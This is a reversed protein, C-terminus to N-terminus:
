EYIYLVDIQSPDYTIVLDELSKNPFEKKAIEVIDAISPGKEKLFFNIEVDKKNKDHIDQSVTYDIM